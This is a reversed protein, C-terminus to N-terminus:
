VPVRTFFAEAGTASWSKSFVLEPVAAQVRESLHILGRAPRNMPTARKRQKGDKTLQHMDDVDSASVAEVGSAGSARTTDVSSEVLFSAIATTSGGEDSRQQKQDTKQMEEKLKKQQEEYM